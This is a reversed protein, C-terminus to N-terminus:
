LGVARRLAAFDKRKFERLVVLLLLYVMGLAALKVVVMWGSTPWLKAAAFVAAGGAVCRLVNFGNVAAGLYRYVLLGALVVGMGFTALCATAAGILGYAPILWLNLGAAVPLLALIAVMRVGPHNTAAVLGYFVTVFALLSAGVIRLSLAAAGDAYRASFLLNTIEGASGAVLFCIPAFVILLVRVAEASVSRALDDKGEALAHSVRPFVAGVLAQALFMPLLSVTYAAGYAGAAAPSDMLAKVMWLDLAALATAGAATPLTIATWSLARRLMPPYPVRPMRRNYRLLFVLFLVGAVVPGSIQGVVAGATGLGVYLLLGIMAVRVVGQLILMASATGYLRMGNFLWNGLVGAADFPIEIAALLLLGVLLPDGFVRGIPSTCALFGALVVATVVTYWRGAVALAASLRRPDESVAKRLGPVILANQFNKIWLMVSIVIVFRGYSGEPLSRAAIIHVLYGFVVMLLNATALLVTGRAATQGQWFAPQAESSEKGQTVFCKGKGAELWM